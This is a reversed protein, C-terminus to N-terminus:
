FGFDTTTQAVAATAKSNANNKLENLRAQREALSKSIEDADYSFEEDLAGQSGKTVLLERVSVTRTQIEPEGFGMEIEKSITRFSYNAIGAVRVTDGKNWYTKIYNKAAESAVVYKIVDVKDGYQPLIGTIELRDTLEGNIDVEEKIAGVVIVNSFASTDVCDEKRIKQCFTGSITPYSIIKDQSYFENARIDAKNFRVRDAREIDGCAAISTMQTLKEIAAYGPNETGKNTLKTAFMRIPVELDTPAGNIMVTTRIKVEGAIYDKAPKTATAKTLGTKIDVESLIGEIHVINEAQKM